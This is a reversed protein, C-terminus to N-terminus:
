RLLVLLEAVVNEAMAVAAPARERRFGTLGIAARPIGGVRLESGSGAAAHLM